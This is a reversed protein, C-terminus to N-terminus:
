SNMHLIGLICEPTSHFSMTFNCAEYEDAVIDGTNNLGKCRSAGLETELRQMPLDHFGANLVDAFTRQWVPANYNSRRSARKLHLSAQLKRADGLMYDVLCNFHLGDPLIYLCTRYLIRSVMEPRSNWNLFYGSLTKFNTHCATIAVAQFALALNM